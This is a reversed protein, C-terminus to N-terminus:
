ERLGAGLSGKERGTEPRGSIPKTKHLSRSLSEEGGM